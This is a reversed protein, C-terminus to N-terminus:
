HTGFPASAVNSAGEGVLRGVPAAFVEAVLYLLM